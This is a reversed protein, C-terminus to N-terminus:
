ADVDPQTLAAVILAVLSIGREQARKKKDIWWRLMRPEAVFRLVTRDDASILRSHSRSM